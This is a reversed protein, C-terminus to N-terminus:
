YSPESRGERRELADIAMVRGKKRTKACIDRTRKGYGVDSVAFPNTGLSPGCEQAEPIGVDSSGVAM